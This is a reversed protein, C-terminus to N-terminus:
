LESLIQNIIYSKCLEFEDGSFPESDGNLFRIRYCDLGEIKAIVGIDHKHKTFANTTIVVSNGVRFNCKHKM